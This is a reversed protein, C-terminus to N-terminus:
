PAVLKVPEDKEISRLWQGFKALSLFAGLAREDAEVEYLAYEDNGRLHIIACRDVLDNPRTGLEIIKGKEDLGYDVCEQAWRYAALQLAWSDLYLGKDEDSQATCKLDLGWTHGGMRVGWRDRQGIYTGPTRICDESTGGQPEWENWWKELGNVYPVLREITANEDGRWSKASTENRAMDDVLEALDVAEDRFWAELVRHVATGIAARSDWVGRHHRRLVNYAEDAPLTRWETTYVAQLATENAAGWPLGPISKLGIIETVSREPKKLRAYPRPPLVTRIEKTTSMSGM